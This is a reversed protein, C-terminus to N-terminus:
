KPEPIIFNEWDDENVSKESITAGKISIGARHMTEKNGTLLPHWVPLKKKEYLLKYACTSPLWYANEKITTPTLKICEPVHDNRHEYDNCL